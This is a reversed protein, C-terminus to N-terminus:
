CKISSYLTWTIDTADSEAISWPQYIAQANMDGKLANLHGYIETHVPGWSVKCYKLWLVGLYSIFRVAIFCLNVDTNNNMDKCVYVITLVMQALLRM